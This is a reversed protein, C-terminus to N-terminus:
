PVNVHGAPPTRSRARRTELNRDCNGDANGDTRQGAPEWRTVPAATIRPVMAVHRSGRSVVLGIEQAGAATQRDRV